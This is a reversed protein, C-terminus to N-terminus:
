LYGRKQERSYDGLFEYLKMLDEHLLEAEKTKWRRIDREGQTSGNDKVFRAASRALRGVQLRERRMRLLWEVESTFMDDAM